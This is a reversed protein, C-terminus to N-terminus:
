GGNVGADPQTLAHCRTRRSHRAPGAPSARAAVARRSGSGALRDSGRREAQLPSVALASPSSPVASAASSASWGRVLDTRGNHGGVAM